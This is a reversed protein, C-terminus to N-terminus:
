ASFSMARSCAYFLVDDGCWDPVRGDQPTGSKSIRWVAPADREGTRSSGDIMPSAESFFDAMGFIQKPIAM